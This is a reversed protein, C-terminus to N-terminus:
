KLPKSPSQDSPNKPSLFSFGKAAIAKLKVALAWEFRIQKSKPKEGKEKVEKKNSKRKAQLM